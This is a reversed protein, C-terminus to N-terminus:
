FLGAVFVVSLAIHTLLFFDYGKIRFYISSSVHIFGMAIIAQIITRKNAQRCM